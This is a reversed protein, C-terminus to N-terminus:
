TYIDVTGYETTMMLYKGFSDWKIENVEHKFKVTKIPKNNKVDIITILDEKNGVAIRSGDPKYAININEGNTSITSICKGSKIDWIKVSKDASCTALNNPRTPDFCLQHISKTHGKLEL